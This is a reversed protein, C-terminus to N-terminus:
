PNLRYNVKLGTFYNVRPAANYFRGGVANLDNGLSYKEDLANDVGAFIDLDIDGLSKKFGFRGGLLSYSEASQTHEDDLTIESTYSWTAHLYLGFSFGLDLGSTYLTSPVGTLSKGSLDVSDSNPLVKLYNRFTYDQFTLATWLNLKTITQNDSFIPTWAIKTELGQQSTKGANVFYEAGDETRRIGITQDLQFSYATADLAFTRNFFNGRLGVEYNAGVEPKIKKDFIATSPYLEQITPPSYGKSYSAYANLADNIKKHLAIRPSFVTNFNKDEDVVPTASLRTFDVNVKNISGGLTLSFNSPLSLELQAFGFYTQFGIEDSSQQAGVVGQNNAFVGIPSFMTQYEGGFNLKGKAFQYQTNMRGGFGQESRREFNRITPNKFQTSTGYIGTQTSWHESWEYDHNFGLYITKNFIEAHQDVAGPNPGGPPRAQKPNEQYQQLTLAGPTEYALDSYLISTTFTSKDAVFQAQAQLVDRAMATQERYGDSQQHGYGVTITSNDSHANAHLSYGVLGYSGVVTSASLRSTAPFATKLSLVGGTGAGYMSSSPGKIVEAGDISNFDILNLYTNGGADTFPLGNWYVKVNRVGFPSRLSSGRMSLRYSGPSREEMRVGPITNLAPLLSTNAFRELDVPKIAAVSAPIEALPKNYQYAQVLTEHLVIVSDVISREQAQLSFNATILIGIFLLRM